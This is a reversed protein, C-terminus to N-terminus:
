LARVQVNWMRKATWPEHVFRVWKTGNFKELLVADWEFFNSLYQDEAVNTAWGMLSQSWFDFKQTNGRYDLDFTKL